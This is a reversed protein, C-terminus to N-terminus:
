LGMGAPTLGTLYNAQATCTVAPFAPEIRVQSGGQCFGALATHLARAGIGDPWGPSSPSARMPVTPNPDDAVPSASSTTPALSAPRAREVHRQHLERDLGSGHRTWEHSEFGRGIGQLLTIPTTWRPTGSSELGQLVM